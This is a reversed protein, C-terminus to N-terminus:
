LENSLLIKLEEDSNTTPMFVIHKELEKEKIIEPDANFALVKSGNM